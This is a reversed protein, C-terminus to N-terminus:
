RRFCIYTGSNIREFYDAISLSSWMYWIPRHISATGVQENEVGQLRCIVRHPQRCGGYFHCSQTGCLVRASAPLAGGTVAAAAWLLLVSVAPRAMDPRSRIAGVAPVREPLGAGTVRVAQSVASQAQESVCYAADPVPCCVGLTGTSSLRGAGPRASMPQYRLTGGASWMGVHKAPM